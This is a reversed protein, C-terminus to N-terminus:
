DSWIKKIDSPQNVFYTPNLDHLSSHPSYGFGAACVDVGAAKAAHIDYETDGIMITNEAKEDALQMAKFIIDPAPKRNDVDEPGLIVSFQHDIGLGRLIKRAFKGPKNTVVMLTVDKNSLYQLLNSIGGFLQTQNLVNQYYIERFRHITEKPNIDAHNDTLCKVFLDPGPGILEKAEELSLYPIGLEKRLVNMSYHVDAATDVLTGDLDFLALRYGNQKMFVM